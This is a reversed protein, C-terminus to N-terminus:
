SVMFGPCQFVLFMLALVHSTSAEGVGRSQPLADRPTASFGELKGLFWSVAFSTVIEGGRLRNDNDCGLVVGWSCRGVVRGRGVPLPVEKRPWLPLVKCVQVPFFCSPCGLVLGWSCRGVVRGRGVPM